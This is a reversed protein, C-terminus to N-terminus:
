LYDGKENPDPRRKPHLKYRAPINNSGCLPCSEAPTEMELVWNGGTDGNTTDVLNVEAFPVECRSCVGLPGEYCNCIEYHGQPCLHEYYGEFSM